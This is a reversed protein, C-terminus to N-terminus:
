PCFMTLLVGFCCFGCFPLVVVMMNGVNYIHQESVDNKIIISDTIHKKSHLAVLMNLSYNKVSIDSIKDFADPM